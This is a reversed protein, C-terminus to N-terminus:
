ERVLYTALHYAQHDLDKSGDESRFYEGQLDIVIQLASEPFNVVRYRLGGGISAGM